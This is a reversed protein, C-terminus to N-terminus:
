KLFNIILNEFRREYEGLSYNRVLQESANGFKIRLDEEKLLQTIKEALASPDAPKVLFGTKNDQVFVPIEGINTAVIPKGLRLAEMIAIPLDTMVAPEVYIDALPLIDRIDMRGPLFVQSEIGLRAIQNKLESELHGWGVIVFYVDPFKILVKKAAEILYRHGKEEVLRSVTLIIQAAPPIGLEKRVLDSDEAKEMDLLPPIHMTLIKEIPIKEQESTFKRVAESSAIIKDTWKALLWDTWIQWRHKDPYLNQEYSIIVPTRLLIALFRVILNASFLSTAVADFKEKRLFLFLDLWSFIDFPSRFNFKKWHNPSLKIEGAFSEKQEPFLTLLYADFKRGDMVPLQKVLLKEAGGVSLRGIAFLIKIKKNKNM